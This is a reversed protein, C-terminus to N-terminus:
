LHELERQDELSLNWLLEKLCALRVKGAKTKNVALQRLLSQRTNRPCDPWHAPCDPLGLLRLAELRVKSPGSRALEFLVVRPGPYRV